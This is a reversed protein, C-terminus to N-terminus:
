GDAKQDPERRQDPKRVLTPRPSVSPAWVLDARDQPRQDAVYANESPIWDTLWREQLAPGDRELIRARRVSEPVEIWITFDWPVPLRVDTASVGEVIVPVGVPVAHWEVGVDAEFDWRQYCSPRGALLPEVVERVFRDRDWGPLGPRAFDDNHIVVADPLTAAIRAALTSKGSGGLGDIGVWLTGSRWRLAAVVAAVPDSATGM